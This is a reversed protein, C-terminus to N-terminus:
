KDVAMYNYRISTPAAPISGAVKRTHPTRESGASSLAWFRYYIYLINRQLVFALVDDM